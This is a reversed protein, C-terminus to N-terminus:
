EEGYLLEFTSYHDETYYILGDNSYVIRKAGRSKKGLTDIDCEHYERGPAEPLAGEYNGFYSGGICCGPAYPELSGGSWGLSQAEKKTIFNQPLEGYTYLYLAVDDKTTYTGDRDLRGETVVPETETWADTETLYTTQETAATTAEAATSVTTDDPQITGATMIPLTGSPQTLESFSDSSLEAASNQNKNKKKGCGSLTVAICGSLLLAILKRMM